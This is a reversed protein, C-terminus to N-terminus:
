QQQNSLGPSYDWGMWGKGKSLLLRVPCVQWTVAASLHWCVGGKFGWRWWRFGVVVMSVVAMEVSRWQNNLIAWWRGWCRGNDFVWRWGDDVVGLAWTCVGPSYEAVQGNGLWRSMHCAAVLEGMEIVLVWGGM